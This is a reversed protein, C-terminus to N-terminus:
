AARAHCANTPPSTPAEHRHQWSAARGGLLATGRTGGADGRTACCTGTGHPWGGPTPPLGGSVAHQRNEPTPQHQPASIGVRLVDDQRERRVVVFPRPLGAWAAAVVLLFIRALLMLVRLVVPLLVLLVVPLLVLLLVAVL